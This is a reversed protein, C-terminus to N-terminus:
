LEKDITVRCEASIPVGGSSNIMFLDLGILKPSCEQHRPTKNLQLNLLAIEIQIVFLCDGEQGFREM